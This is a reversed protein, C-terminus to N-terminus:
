RRERYRWAPAEDELPRRYIRVMWLFAVLM